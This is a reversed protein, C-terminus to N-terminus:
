KKESLKKNILNYARLLYWAILFFTIIACHFVMVIEFNSLGAAIVRPDGIGSTAFSSIIEAWNFFEDISIFFIMFFCLLLINNINKGIDVSKGTKKSLRLKYLYNMSLVFCILALFGNIIRLPNSYIITIWEM